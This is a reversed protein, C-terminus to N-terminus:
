SKEEKPLNIDYIPKVNIVRKGKQRVRFALFKGAGAKLRPSFLAELNRRLNSIAVTPKNPTLSTSILVARHNRCSGHKRHAVNNARAPNSVPPYNQRSVAQCIQQRPNHSVLLEIRM